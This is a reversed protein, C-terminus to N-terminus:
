RPASLWDRVRAIDRQEISAPATRLYAELYPRAEQTRGARRLTLGLNFLSQYDRPELAVARRWHEIAEETRGERAAIMAVGNHARAQSPDARLASTFAARAEAVNGAMLHVTGINVLLGANGPDLTRAREFSALAERARGLRALAMGDAVILDADPEASRLFPAVVQRAEEPRGAEVLTGALLVVTAPDLPRLAVARRAAELAAALDGRAREISVLQTWTLSMGPRQALTELCLARAREYDGARFLRLVEMERREFAILAKPDDEPGHSERAPSAGGAAYGLARLRERTAADEEVRSVTRESRRLGALRGRLREVLDPRQSALNAREGADRELDYVEPVPLDIYKLSGSVVGRLPAWGRDLSASLAEFYTDPAPSPRGAAHPLLSHGPLEPPVELGLADLVTPLVDVHRVPEPVVAPELLRPAFLVLPVHLTSEYAFVGHTMEGHEGLGEGHDSTLVVLTPPRDEEILPRLLPELAADAAAVEGLYPNGRFRGAWPDPPEYPLHPEYLHVFAFSPRAPDEDLWKRALAVTDRGRREPMVFAGSAESAGVHDDYVDFGADLGFRSDLPFASVFASTRYGRAKLVTALTSTAPPFRFGSNDRVGHALPYQGSLLNAHSPLTVVNHARARAFRVGRSALRDMWPTEAAANGYAGLADARLTDISILLVSLGAERRVGGTERGRGWM